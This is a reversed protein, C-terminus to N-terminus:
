RRRIWRPDGYKERALAEAERLWDPPPQWPDLRVGFFGEFGAQVLSAAEAYPVPRGALGGLHAAAPTMPNTDLPISGHHLVRGGVRRQASGVLKAGGAVLDYRTVRYFCRGGAEGTTSPPEVAAAGRLAASIGLARFGEALAAHIRHYAGEVAGDFPSAEERGVVSFTLEHIHLIADGGTMRRTIVAGTERRIRAQEVLDDYRQFYGLSLGPPDWAYLRLLVSPGPYRDLLVEDLAMNFFPHGKGSEYLFWQEM